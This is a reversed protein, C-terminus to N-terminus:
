ARISTNWRRGPTLDVGKLDYTLWYYYMMSGYQMCDFVYYADRGMTAAGADSIDNFIALPVLGVASIRPRFLLHWLLAPRGGLIGPRQGDVGAHSRTFGQGSRSERCAVADADLGQYAIAASASDVRHRPEDEAANGKEYVRNAALGQAHCAIGSAFRAVASEAPAAASASIGVAAVCMAAGAFKLLKKM